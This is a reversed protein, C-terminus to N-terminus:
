ALSSSVANCIRPEQVRVSFPACTEQADSHQM